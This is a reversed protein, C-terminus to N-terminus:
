EDMKQRKSVSQPDKPVGPDKPVRYSREDLCKIYYYDRRKEAERVYLGSIFIEGDDRHTPYQHKISEYFEDALKQCEAYIEKMGNTDEEISKNM